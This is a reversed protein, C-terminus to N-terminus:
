IKKYIEDMEPNRILKYGKSEMLTRIEPYNYNNEITLVDITLRDFDISNLITLEAGEVDLSLFDVRSIKHEDCLENLNYCEVEIKEIRGGEREIRDLHRNDYQDALGSLMEVGQVNFLTQKGRKATICGNILTSKRNKKLKEFALPLPEILLGTWGLYEEFYKTNSFKEGDYAGIEIFVGGRKNKFFTENVFRDQSVQSYYNSNPDSFEDKIKFEEPARTEAFTETQDECGVTLLSAAISLLCGKWLNKRM